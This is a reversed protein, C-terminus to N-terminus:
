VAGSTRTSPVAARGAQTACCAASCRLASCGGVCTRACVAERQPQPRWRRRVGCGTGGRPRPSCAHANWRAAAAARRRAATKGPASGPERWCRRADDRGAAPEHCRRAAPVSCRGCTRRASEALPLHARSTMVTTGSRKTVPRTAPRRYRPAARPACPGPRSGVRAAPRVCRKAAGKRRQPCSTGKLTPVSRPLRRGSAAAHLGHARAHSWVVRAARLRPSAFM